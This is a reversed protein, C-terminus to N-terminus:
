LEEGPPADRRGSGISHTPGTSAQLPKPPPTMVHVQCSQTTAVIRLGLLGSLVEERLSDAASFRGVTVFSGGCAGLICCEKLAVVILLQMM